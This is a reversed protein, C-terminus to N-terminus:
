FKKQCQWPKRWLPSIDCILIRGTQSFRKIQHERTHPTEAHYLFYLTYKINKTIKKPKSGDQAPRFISGPGALALVVTKTATCFVRCLNVGRRILTLLKLHIGEPHNLWALQLGFRQLWQIQKYKYKYIGIEKAQTYTCKYVTILRSSKQNLHMNLFPFYSFSSSLSGVSWEASQKEYKVHM